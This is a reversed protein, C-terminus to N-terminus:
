GSHPFGAADNLKAIAYSTKGRVAQHSHLQEKGCGACKYVPMELEVKFAPAGEYSMDLPFSQTREPRAALERGCACLYKKFLMGKEEGAALTGERDKLEQILWLMFDDDVPFAHGSACKAVPMGLATLRLPPNASSLREVVQM